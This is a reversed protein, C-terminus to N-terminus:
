PSDLYQLTHTLLFFYSLLTTDITGSTDLRKGRDVGVISIDVGDVESKSYVHSIIEREVEGVGKDTVPSSV